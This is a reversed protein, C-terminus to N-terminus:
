KEVNKTLGSHWVPCANELICRIVSCSVCVAFTVCQFSSFLYRLVNTKCSEIAYRVYLGM